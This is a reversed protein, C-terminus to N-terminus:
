STVQTPVSICICPAFASSSGDRNSLCSTLLEPLSSKRMSSCTRPSCSRALSTKFRVKRRDYVITGRENNGGSGATIDTTIYDWWPGLLDLVREFPGLDDNVEQIAVVDFRSIIEAIYHLSETLRPGRKFKDSDFDRINWTALLLTDELSRPPIEKDLQTRLRQLNKVSRKRDAEALHKLKWYMPM